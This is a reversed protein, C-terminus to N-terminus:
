RAQPAAELTRSGTVDFPVGQYSGQDHEFESVSMGLEAVWCSSIHRSGSVDGSFTSDSETAVCTHPQGAVSVARTGTVTTTTHGRTGGTSWDASYTAGQRVPSALLLLPPQFTGGVALGTTSGQTSLWEVGGPAYLRQDEETGANSSTTLRMVPATDTGGVRTVQTTVEESFPQQSGVAGVRRTGELHFLWGGSAPIAIRAPTGPSPAVAAPATARTVPAVPPGAGRRPARAVSRPVVTTPAHAAATAPPAATAPVGALAVGGGAGPVRGTGLSRGLPTTVLIAAMAAAALGLEATVAATRVWRRPRTRASGPWFALSGLWVTLAPVLLPRVVFTDILVGATVAFGMQALMHLPVTVMALFTGALILGASSIVPGTEVLGRVAAEAVTAGRDFAERMRSTIFINYDAGLAVLIVFLFPPVWFSIDGQHLLGSFLTATLGLAAAYSLVVTALLYLPTVPSRLLVMLVVLIAVLLVAAVRHFDEAGFQEIDAFLAPPGGVALRAGSLPGGALTAAATSEVRPLLSLVEAAYPDGRVVVMLRTSAGDAGLFYGLPAALQPYARLVPETLRLGGPSAMASFLPTVDVRNPDLGLARLGAMGDLGAVTRLTLPAGAPQTVSRVEAVGPLARLADTLRDVARLEAADRVPRDGNVVLVIPALEGAPLHGEITETGLRSDASAPLERSLDFSQHFGRLGSGCLLLAAVTVLSVAVPHSRVLAGLRPWAASRRRRAAGFARGGLLELLAPTLSLGAVVTVAVAIGAAPGITRYVGMRATLLSLFAAIVTGGSAAIVPGTTRRTRRVATAGDAGQALEDRYRSVLFLCYDTGAGFVMVVILTTALTSVELGHGALIGILGLSTAFAVGATILPALAGALSRYVYLLIALVLLVSVIATRTFSATVAQTEDSSLGAVGGLHHTLGAPATADLHRRLDAVARDAAGTFPSARLGVVILATTGDPSTLVSSLRSLGIPSEVSAVTGAMAPSALEESLKVEYARDATTLGGPRSLVILASDLSPDHPFLDHVLRGAQQSPADHPLLATEDQVAVTSLSPSGLLASGAAAVWAAVVLVPRRLLRRVAGGRDPDAM